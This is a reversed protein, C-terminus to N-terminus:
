YRTQLLKSSLNNVFTIINPWYRLKKMQDSIMNQNLKTKLINSNTCLYVYQSNVPYVLVNPFVKILKESLNEQRHPYNIVLVGDPKLASKAHVFNFSRFSEGCDLDIIIADYNQGSSKEMFVNGDGIHVRLRDDQKFGLYKAAELVAPDLEVVDIWCNPFKDRILMPMHGGGLGIFLIKNIKVYQLFLISPYLYNLYFLDLDNIHYMTQFYIKANGDFKMYGPESDPPKVYIYKCLKSPITIIKNAINTQANPNGGYIKQRLTLYKHKYKLYKRYFSDNM